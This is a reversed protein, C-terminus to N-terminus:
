KNLFSLEYFTGKEKKRKLTGNLQDVFIDVLEIGISEKSIPKTSTNMGIGNDGYVIKVENESNSKLEFHITGEKMGIFGHELSNTVLENIILGLPILQDVNLRTDDITIVTEIKLENNYSIIFETILQKFHESINIHRLDHSQYLKRHLASITFIRNEIDKLM